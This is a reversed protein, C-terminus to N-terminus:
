KKLLEKAEEITVVQVVPECWIMKEYFRIIQEGSLFPNNYTTTADCPVAVEFGHEFAAKASSDICYETQMGCLVLREIAKQHLYERLGTEKFSSPFRKEFIHEQTEPTLSSHLQWGPTGYELVDGVGGDHRVYIVEAGFAHATDILTVINRLFLDTQAPHDDILANQVDIVLLATKM